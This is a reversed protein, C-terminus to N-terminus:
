DPGFGAASATAGLSTQMTVFLIGANLAIVCVAAIWVLWRAPRFLYGAALSAAFVVGVALLVHREHDHGYVAARWVLGPWGRFTAAQDLGYPLITAWVRPVLRTLMVHAMVLGAALVVPATSIRGRPRRGQRGMRDLIKDFSRLTARNM